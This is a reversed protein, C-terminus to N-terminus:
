TRGVSIDILGTQGNFHELAKGIVTGSRAENNAEAHGALHSCVLLDGKRIGGTVKCKTRGLLAVTAVNKNEIIQSNIVVGAVRLSNSMGTLSVEEEGSFVLVTGLEYNDDAIYQDAYTTSAFNTM